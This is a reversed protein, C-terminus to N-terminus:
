LPAIEFGKFCQDNSTSLRVDLTKFHSRATQQFVLPCGTSSDQAGSTKLELHRQTSKKLLSSAAT